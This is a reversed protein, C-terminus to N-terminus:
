PGGKLQYGFLTLISAWLFRVQWLITEFKGKDSELKAIREGNASVKDSIVDLKNLILKDVSTQDM